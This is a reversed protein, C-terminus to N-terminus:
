LSKVMTSSASFGLWRELLPLHQTATERFGLHEYLARARPNTDVVDLRVSAFGHRQAYELVAGLLARGVGRSRAEPAVALGDLTLQRPPHPRDFLALLGFRLSGSLPGFARVFADW